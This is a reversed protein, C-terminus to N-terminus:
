RLSHLFAILNKIEEDSFRSLLRSPMLSVNQVKIEDVESRPLRTVKNKLDTISVFDASKETIFGQLAQGDNTILVSAKFREVVQKSPYVIADALETRKLRLTVGNLAPGFITTQRNKIGGHCAYCGAKLYAARGAVVDGAIEAIGAVQRHLEADDREAVNAARAVFAERFEELYWKHWYEQTALDPAAVETGTFSRWAEAANKTPGTVDVSLSWTGTSTGRVIWNAPPQRSFQWTPNTAIGARQGSPLTWEISAILGAPGGQNRAEIAVVNSGPQLVDDLAVRLPKTWDSSTAVRNGNVYAIFENDCTIILEGRRVGRPLNFERAFWAADDKRQATSSWIVRPRRYSGTPQQGSLVMLAQELPVTQQPYSVMLELLRFYVAQIGKLKGVKLDSTSAIEQVRQNAAFLGNACARIAEADAFEFLGSVFIDARGVAHPHASLALVVSRRLEIEEVHAFQDALFSAAKATQIRGLLTVINQRSTTEETLHFREILLKDADPIDGVKTFVIQALQSNPDLQEFQVALRDAHHQGLKNLVTAWFQPFQLGKGAFETFWGSQTTLLWDCLRTQAAQEWGTPPRPIEAIAAALHFQTVYEKEVVLQNVLAAFAKVVKFEGLLRAQEWRVIPDRHPFGTRMWSTAFDRLERSGEIERRYLSLIRLCNLYDEDAAGSQKLLRRVLQRVVEVPPRENRFHAAVLTRMLIQPSESRTGVHLFEVTPRHSLAITAAHRISRSKDAMSEVLRPIADTSPSRSLAEAARRRVFPDPDDLLAILLRTENARGRIGVLWAAQARIEAEEMQGLTAVFSSPLTDFDAALLRLARLRRRVPLDERDVSRMLQSTADKGLQARLMLERQHSWAAAPQPLTLLHELLGDAEVVPWDPVIPPITPQDAVDYFIRWVGQNHDTVFLSGDPAVDIDVLAFNVPRGQADQAGPKATALESFEAQWTAANRKLHFAVLRGSTAYRGSTASKWRYDCVLFADRYRAPLQSHEYVLGWNPSGRGIDLIGPLTDIYWPPHAGVQQWGLDVGTLWHNLRVPRYFPVDVHFEMDSDFSFFEGLYNMGLSPPNRGGAAICEWQQGSPDLRFVSAAREVHNPSSAQTIHRRDHTGGGDGTVLYVFGDLGRLVTHATHDGGTNFPQGLRREFKLRGAGQAGSFLQLGDGAVVYLHDGYVLLGQPGRGAVAPGDAITQQADFVGNGDTDALRRVARGDGVLLRGSGDFALDYSGGTLQAEAARYIHFGPPLIFQEDLLVPEIAWVSCTCLLQILCTTTLSRM